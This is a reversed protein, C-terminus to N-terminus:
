RDDNAFTKPEDNKSAPTGSSEETEEPFWLHSMGSVIDTLRKLLWAFIGSIIVFITLYVVTPLNFRRVGDLFLYVLLAFLAVLGFATLIILLITPWLGLPPKPAPRKQPPKSTM